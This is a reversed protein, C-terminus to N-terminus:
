PSVEQAKENAKKTAQELSKKLEEPLDSIPRSAILTKAFASAILLMETLSGGDIKRMFQRYGTILEEKEEGTDYDMKKEREPKFHSKSEDDLFHFYMRCLEAAQAKQRNIFTWPDSGFTQLCWSEDDISLKRFRFVVGPFAVLTFTGLEPRVYELSKKSVKKQSM